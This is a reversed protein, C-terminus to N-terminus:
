KSHLIIIIDVYQQVNSTAKRCGCLGIYRKKCNCSVLNLISELAAAAAAFIFISSIGKTKAMEWIFWNQLVRAVRIIRSPLSIEDGESNHFTISKRAFEKRDNEMLCNRSHSISKRLELSIIRPYGACRSATPAAM